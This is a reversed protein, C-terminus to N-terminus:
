LFEDSIYWIEIRAKGSVFIALKIWIDKVMEQCLMENVCNEEFRM